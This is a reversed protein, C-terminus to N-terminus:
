PSASVNLTDDGEFVEVRDGEFSGLPFPTFLRTADVDVGRSELSPEVDVGNSDKFGVSVGSEIRLFGRYLPPVESAVDGEIASAAMALLRAIIRPAFGAEAVLEPVRGVVCVDRTGLKGKEDPPTDFSGAVLEDCRESAGATV